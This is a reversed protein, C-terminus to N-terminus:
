DVLRLKEIVERLVRWKLPNLDVKYPGAVIGADDVRKVYGLGPDLNGSGAQDEWAHQPRRGQGAFTAGM